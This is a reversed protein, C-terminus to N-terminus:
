GIGHSVPHSEVVGNAPHHAECIAPALSPQDIVFVLCEASREPMGLGSVNPWRRDCGGAEKGERAPTGAFRQRQAPILNIKCPAGCRKAVRFRSWAHARERM